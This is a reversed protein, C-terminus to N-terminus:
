PSRSASPLSLEILGEVTRLLQILDTERSLRHDGDPVLTFNVEDLPLLSMLAQGHEWPVDPDKGGQLIHVPCGLHLPKRTIEHARGDEILKQTIIYDGDGYDSPLAVYGAREMDAKMADSFRGWMLKETMDWAPAVLVLGAVREPSPRRQALLLALWGGMSSGIVIQPGRTVSDFVALAEELWRSITGETFEGGSAGHGSYDMRCCNRNEAVAWDALALAKQGLMSSKFGGLWFLGPMAPDGKNEIYAIQRADKGEGIALYRM